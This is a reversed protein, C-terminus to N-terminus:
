KIFDEILGVVKTSQNQHIFHDGSIIELTSDPFNEHFILGYKEPTSEDDEGYILLTPVSINKALDRVDESVIKKFTDSMHEAVLYDSGISKYLKTKLGSKYKKPLPYTLIKGAKAGFKIVGLKTKDEGRIGAGSILILNSAELGQDLAKIAIAGGNSHGILCYINNLETKNVFSKVFTAYDKLEWTNKPTQSAGFGPLDLAVVEYKKSLETTLNKFTALSDAWGHLLLITKGKGTRSYKILLDEVIIQM